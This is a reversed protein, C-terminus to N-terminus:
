TTMGRAVVWRHSGSRDVVSGSRAYQMSALLWM